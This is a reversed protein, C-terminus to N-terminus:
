PLITWFPGAETGLWGAIKVLSPFVKEFIRKSTDVTKDVEELNKTVRELNKSILQKDPEPEEAEAKAAEVYKTAKEKVEGPLEANRIMQGIQTLLEVVEAQNLVNSTSSGESNIAQKNNGIAAQMVGSMSGSNSQSIGGPNNSM